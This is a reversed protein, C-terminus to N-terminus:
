APNAHHLRTLPSNKRHPLAHSDTRLEGRLTSGPRKATAPSRTSRRARGSGSSSQSQSLPRGHPNARLVGPVQREQVAPLRALCVMGAGPPTQPSGRVHPAADRGPLPLVRVVGLRQLRWPRDFSGDCPQGSSARPGAHSGAACASGTLVGPPWAGVFGLRGSNLHRRSGSSSSQAMFRMIETARSARM